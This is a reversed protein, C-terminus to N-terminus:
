TLLRRSVQALRNHGVQDGACTPVGGRERRNLRFQNLKPTRCNGRSVLSGHHVLLRRAPKRLRCYPWPRRPHPWVCASRSQGARVSIKPQIKRPFALASPGTRLLGPGRFPSFSPGVCPARPRGAVSNPVVDHPVRRRDAGCPAGRKRALCAHFLNRSSVPSRVARAV